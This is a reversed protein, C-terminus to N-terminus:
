GGRKAKPFLASLELVPLTRTAGGGADYVVEHTDMASALAPKKRRGLAGVLGNSDHEYLPGTRGVRWCVLADIAEFFHKISHQASVELKFEVRVHAARTAVTLARSDFFLKTGHGKYGISHSTKPKASAGVGWFAELREADMGEGDDVFLVSVTDRPDRTTRIWVRAAGHDRANSLAERILELADVRNESLGRVLNRVDVRREITRASM